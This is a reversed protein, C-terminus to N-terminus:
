ETCYLSIGITWANFHKYAAFFRCLYIEELM